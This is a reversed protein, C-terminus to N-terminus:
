TTVEKLTQSKGTVISLLQGLLVRVSSVVYLHIKSKVQFDNSWQVYAM